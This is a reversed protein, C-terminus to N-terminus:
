RDRLVGLIKEAVHTPLNVRISKIDELKSNTLGNVTNVIICRSVGTLILKGAELYELYETENRIVLCPVNLVVAEEQVGGSDTMIFRSNMLLNLFDIYCVPNIMKLRKSIPIDNEALLRKTRPHLPMVIDVTNSLENLSGFIETLNEINDTNEARHITALVYKGKDINLKEIIGSKHTLGKNRLCADILLSGVLFMKDKDIGEKLLNNKSKEDIPFLYDSMHDAIVRNREEPMHMNFSRCGAEIHALKINLKSAALTGALTSNTDGFVIVLDPRKDIMLRELKELMIATQKGQLGSGVKLNIDPERLELEHFFLTDMDYDYHQGTHILIHDFEKDLLPILPSLKIIEPRTGLITIIKM